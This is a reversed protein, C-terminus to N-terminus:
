AEVQRAGGFLHCDFSAPHSAIASLKKANFYMLINSIRVKQTCKPYKSLVKSPIEDVRM